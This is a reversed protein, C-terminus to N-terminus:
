IKSGMTVSIHMNELCFTDDLNVDVGFLIYFSNILVDISICSKVESKPKSGEGLTVIQRRKPWGGGGLHTVIIKLYGNTFTTM